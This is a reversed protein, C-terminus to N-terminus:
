RARALRGQQHDHNRGRTQDTEPRSTGAQKKDPDPMLQALGGAGDALWMIDDAYKERLSAVQESTFPQWRGDGPAFGWDQGLKAALARLEPLRPSANLWDRAHTMPADVPTVAALQAEPRGAFTEFPAAWIPVDPLACAVDTIVDRWSRAGITLQELTARTPLGWGRWLGYGLVSIWYSDLSRVNLVVNSVQGDFAANFRAMREGVGRYLDGVQLNDRLSGLLNEDSILLHSYGMGASHRLNMRVRGAGRRHSDRGVMPVTDPLIGRLLGTRTRGPGWYGVGQASFARRNRGLYNQFSTTACRHAGIHLTVDMVKAIRQDIVAGDPWTAPIAAIM